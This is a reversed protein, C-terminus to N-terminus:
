DSLINSVAKGIQFALLPPVANGVQTFQQTRNGEFLYNDPFTQLRAAERVTLSRCQRPDPHIFYHGDKAIHSTVTTSPQDACQVRFRDNFKGSTWNKHAPALGVPFESAKPSRDFLEAFTAAFAYRALDSAMHGRSENNPLAHLRRDVLWAALENDRVGALAASGTPSVETMASIADAHEILRRAVEDLKEDEETFAASAAARFASLVENRWAEPSDATRSLTSRLRPMDGIADSVSPSRSQVELIHEAIASARQSGTLDNRIGFLIVRHRRQPVGHEESRLIYKAGGRGAGASLPVITYANDGGANRLDAVVMKFINDGDVSASLFGKVNEMVFAAPKLRALIRIYERYLFHRHDDSAVYDAIGKNRARGVLSYAQCPPGGVLITRGDSAQKIADLLPNIREIGEPTGLELQLTERCAAAWQEPYKSLLQDRTLIGALYDYYAAPLEDEFQRVFSRLRLTAFASSEKEVSLALDFVRKGSEDRVASFGEALGGPGAFLDVVKFM